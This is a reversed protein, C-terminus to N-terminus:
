QDPIRYPAPIDPEEPVISQWTDFKEIDANWRKEALWEEFFEGRATEFAFQDMPRMEHGLVQIVHWGFSSEVPDSIEGIELSFAATEFAEVMQGEAFWGLDGGQAGSGTDTSLEKALEGFDEGNTFRDLVDLAEEETAVLIHRAWVMEQEAEMDKTVEDLLEQRYLDFGFLARFATEDMGAENMLNDLATQYNQNFADETYETPVPTPQSTPAPEESTPTETPVEEVETEGETLEPTPSILALQEPSLTSTAAPETTPQPTPTGAPFYGFAAQLQEQIDAESFNIGLKNAEQRIIVDDIMKDIVTPGLVLPELQFEIQKLSSIFMNQTAEDEIGTVYQYYNLYQNVLDLREYSARAVFFEGNVEEGNVSFIADSLLQATKKPKIVYENVLGIAVLIAVIAFIVIATITLNRKQIREREARALHKRTIIREKERKAM